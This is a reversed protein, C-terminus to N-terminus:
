LMNPNGGVNIMPKLFKSSTLELLRVFIFFPLLYVFNPKSIAGPSDMHFVAPRSGLDIKQPEINELAEQHSYVFTKARM